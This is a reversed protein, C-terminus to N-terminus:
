EPQHTPPTSMEMVYTTLGYTTIGSNDTVCPWHSEISMTVKGAQAKRQYWILVAQHYLCMHTHTQFLKGFAAVSLSASPFQGAVQQDCTWRGVM